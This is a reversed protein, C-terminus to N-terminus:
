RSIAPMYLGNTPIRAQTLPDGLLVFTMLPDLPGGALVNTYGAEVLSGLRAGAAPQLALQQLFGQQLLEHGSVVSLGTSGWVAVAGGGPHRILWEDVTGNVAPKVFQSTYCTMALMVFPKNQNALLGVDNTNLLWTEGAGPSNINELKAYEFHNAHGNYAVLGAGRSLSLITASKAASASNVRWDEPQTRPATQYYGGGVPVLMSNQLVLQRDPAPDYYIRKVGDRSPLAQIVKDSLAAFDDAPDPRANQKNDLAKIYNDALFVKGVRWFDSSSDPTEYAVIKRVLDSVEQENRVPFRGIWVDAAFWDRGGSQNDGSVPNDGNLQAMCADCAAEGFNQSTGRTYPDVNDMWAAVLTDNAVGGYAFPDVTADGVLVVSIRRASNQWDSQRRLFNRIAPASIQGYGYVDYITQVDVFLPAFGQQRRLALLPALEEAFLAPGIYIADAAKIDGLVAAAHTQVDPKHTQALNALLYRGAAAGAAQNLTYSGGAGGAVLLPTQPQTVDYLQWSAPLNTLTFSAAGGDTFFEAGAGITQFNLSVPRRWQVADLLAGSGYLGNPMLRLLLSTVAASTSVAATSSPQKRCDPNPLWSAIQTDAWQAGALGEVQMLYGPDNKNDCAALSFAYATSVINFTSVGARLPLLTQVPVTVPVTQTLYAGPALAASAKLDAHFWHDNDAGDYGEKYVHNDRWEGQEYAFAPPGAPAPAATAMQPGEELTLWYASTKNWRDGVTTAYFRLRDGTKEVAVTNGGLTLRLNAPASALGLQSYLLEQLGPQAVIIKFGDRLAADNVPVQVEEVAEVDAREQGAAAAAAPFDEPMPQAGTVVARLQTAIKSVGGEQYIPSIAVVVFHRGHIAGSRLVFVPAAPLSPAAPLINPDPEWDLAPPLEPAALAPPAPLDGAALQEIQVAPEVGAALALTVYHIPLEYGGYHQKPLQAVANLAAAGVQGAPLAFSIVADAGQSGLQVPFDAAAPQAAPPPLEQASAPAPAMFGTLLVASLVTAILLKRFLKRISFVRKTM